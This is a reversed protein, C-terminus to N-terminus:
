RTINAPTFGYGSLVYQARVVVVEAFTILLRLHQDGFMMFDLTDVIHPSLSQHHFLPPSPPLSPFFPFFSALSPPRLPQAQISPCGGGQCLGLKAIDTPALMTFCRCGDGPM